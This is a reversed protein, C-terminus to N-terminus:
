KFIYMETNSESLDSEFFYILEWLERMKSNAEKLDALDPFFDEINLRVKYDKGYEIIVKFRKITKDAQGSIFEDIKDENTGMALAKFTTADIAGYLFRKNM